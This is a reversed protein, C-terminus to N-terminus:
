SHPVSVRYTLQYRHGGLPRVTASRVPAHVHCRTVKTIVQDGCNISGAMSLLNPRGLASSITEVAGAVATSLDGPPSADLVVTGSGDAALPFGWDTQGIRRSGHRVVSMHKGSVFITDSFGYRGASDRLRCTYGTHDPPTCAATVTTHEFSGVQAAVDRQAQDQDPLASRTLLWFGGILAVAGAVALCRVWTRRWPREGRITIGM